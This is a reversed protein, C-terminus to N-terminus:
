GKYKGLRYSVYIAVGSVLFFYTLHILALILSDVPDPM